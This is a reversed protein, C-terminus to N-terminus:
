GEPRSHNLSELFDGGLFAKKYAEMRFFTYRIKVAQGETVNLNTVNASLGSPLTNELYCTGPPTVAVTTNDATNNNTTNSAVTVAAVSGNCFPVPIPLGTLLVIKMFGNEPM